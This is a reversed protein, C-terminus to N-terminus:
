KPRSYLSLLPAVTLWCCISLISFIIWDLLNNHDTETSAPGLCALSGASLDSHLHAAASTWPSTRCGPGSGTPPPTCGSGTWGESWARDPAPGGGTCHCCPRGWPRMCRGPHASQLKLIPFVPHKWFLPSIFPATTLKSQCKMNSVSQINHEFQRM